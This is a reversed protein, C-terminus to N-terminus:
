SFNLFKKKVESLTAEQEFVVKDRAPAYPPEFYKM